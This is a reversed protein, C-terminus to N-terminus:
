DFDAKKDINQGKGRWFFRERVYSYLAIALFLLGVWMAKDLLTDFDVDDVWPLPPEYLHREYGM